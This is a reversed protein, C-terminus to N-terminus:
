SVRLAVAPLGAFELLGDAGAIGGVLAMSLLLVIGIQLM